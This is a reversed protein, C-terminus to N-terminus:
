NTLTALNHVILNAYTFLNGYQSAQCPVMSLASVAVLIINDKITEIQFELGIHKQFKRKGAMCKQLFSVKTVRM